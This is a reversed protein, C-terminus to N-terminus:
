NDLIALCTAPVALAAAQSCYNDIKFKYINHSHGTLQGELSNCFYISWGPTIDCFDDPKKAQVYPL